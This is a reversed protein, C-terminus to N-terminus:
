AFYHQTPYGFVSGFALNESFGIVSGVDTTLFRFFHFGILFGVFGIFRKKGRAHKDHSMNALIHM